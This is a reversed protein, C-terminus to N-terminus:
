NNKKRSYGALCLLGCGLLVMTAPEPVEGGNGGGAATCIIKEIDRELTNSTTYVNTGGTAGYTYGGGVGGESMLPFTHGAGYDPSGIVTFLFIGAGIADQNANYATEYDAAQNGPSGNDSGEDGITVIAQYYDQGATADAGNSWMSQNAVLASVAPANDESHNVPSATLATNFLGWASYRIGYFSARVWVDCDPCDLNAIISNMTNSIKTGEDSMSGSTDIAFAIDLLVDASAMDVADGGQVANGESLSVASAQSLLGFTMIIGALIALVKKM